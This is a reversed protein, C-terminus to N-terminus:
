DTANKKQTQECTRMHNDAERKTTSFHGCQRCLLHLGKARCEPERKLFETKIREKQYEDISRVREIITDLQQLSEEMTYQRAKAKLM